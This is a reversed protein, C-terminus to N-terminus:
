GVTGVMIFAILGYFFVAQGRYFRRMPPYIHPRKEGYLGKNMFHSYGGNAAKRDSYHFYDTYDRYRKQGFINYDLPDEPREREKKFEEATKKYHVGDGKEYIPKTNWFLTRFQFYFLRQQLCLSTSAIPILHSM